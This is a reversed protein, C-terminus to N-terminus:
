KLKASFKIKGTDCTNDPQRYDRVRLYGTAKKGKVEIRVTIDGIPDPNENGGAYTWATATAKGTSSLGVRSFLFFDFPYEYGSTKTCTLNMPVKEPGGTFCNRKKPTSAKKNPKTPLIPCLQKKIQFSFKPGSTTVYKGESIKTKASASATCALLGLAAVAVLLLTKRVTSHQAHM